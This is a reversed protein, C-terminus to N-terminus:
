GQGSAPDTAGWQRSRTPGSGPSCDEGAHQYCWCLSAEFASSAVLALTACLVATAYFRKM